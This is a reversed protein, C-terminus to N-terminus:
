VTTQPQYVITSCKQGEEHEYEFIRTIKVKKKGYWTRKKKVFIRERVWEQSYGACFKCILPVRDQDSFITMSMPPASGQTVVDIYSGISRPAADVLSRGLADEAQHSVLYDIIEGAENMVPELEHFYLSQHDFRTNSEDLQILRDELDAPAPARRAAPAGDFSAAPPLPPLDEEKLGAEPPGTLVLRGDRLAYYFREHKGGHTYRILEQYHHKVDLRSIRVVGFNYGKSKWVSISKVKKLLKYEAGWVSLLIRDGVPVFTWIQSTEGTTPNSVIVTQLFFDFVPSTKLGAFTFCYVGEGAGVDPCEITWRDSASRARRNGSRENGRRRLALEQPPHPQPSAQQHSM